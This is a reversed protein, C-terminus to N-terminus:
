LGDAYRNLITLATLSIWQERELHPRDKKGWLGDSGRADALLEILKVYEKDERSLDTRTLAELVSFGGSFYLPYRYITWNEAEPLLDMHMNKRFAKGLLFLGGKRVAKSRGQGESLTLGWLVKSTSWICSPMHALGDLDYRGRVNPDKMLEVFERYGMKRFEPLHKVDQCYPINWGGDPRQMSLLWSMLKRVRPDRELGFRLMVHLAHGDEFPQPIHNWWSGPINGDDTQWDLIREVATRVNGEDLDTRYQLLNYLNRLMIRYTGGVPPGPGRDEREKLGSPIRWTGDQRLDRLLKRRPPYRECEDITRQLVRDERGKAMVESLLWYRVPPVSTDLLKRSSDGVIRRIEGSQM